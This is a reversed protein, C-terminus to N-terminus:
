YEAYEIEIKPEAAARLSRRFQEAESIRMQLVGPGHHLKALLGVEIYEDGFSAVLEARLKAMAEPSLSVSM